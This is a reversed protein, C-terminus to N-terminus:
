KVLVMKHTQTFTGAQIRYFYIGTALARAQNDKGDWIVSKYGASQYENVLTRVKQGLINYIGLTVQCDTPLAYNIQTVPNFPNPYNQNVSFEEPLATSTIEKKLPTLMGPVIVIDPPAFPDCEDFLENMCTATQNLDSVKAGFLGLADKYGPKAGVVIDAIVLFSDVDIGAFMGCSVPIKFDGYCTGPHGIIAFIGACSYERNLRLALIQGALVGASTELPNTYDHTLVKPTKTGPLFDEVAKSTQWFATYWPAGNPGTLDGIKVGNPFVQLFYHDRICGPQTSLSDGQQSEPCGSGWGGMTYTCFERLCTKVNLTKSCTDACGNADTIIVTYEGAVGIAGTCQNSGNFGGPGTWAYSSMGATACFDTTSDACVTDAGTISCVPQSYITLTRSCTDACGNADTIIVTYEGAAGIAGTCQNSGNFGGPGTWAYSSMGATACFSTTFGTCVSDDGTISCAPQPFVTLTRSCTDACGNADTIIVTYEGAVGIAGTCQNSGSFGGPGTWAYSSMGATACFSTTFGTCVSDDGTINCVPQPNVTLDRSCTDACGNADTIIVTYTYPGGPNLGAGVDVCQTTAIFGNPGTWAYSSMGATACWHTTFGVCIVNSGGTINCTPQSYVTLTRSCTDACGNADTIIVTYEGAAGIPGTCQNSSSFGGPGTWVYSSM